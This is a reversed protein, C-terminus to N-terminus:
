IIEKRKRTLVFAASSLVCVTAALAIGVDGTKESESSSGGSTTDEESPADEGPNLLSMIFDIIMNLFEELMDFDFGLSELFDAFSGSINVNGDVLQEVIDALEANGMTNAIADIFDGLTVGNGNLYDRILQLLMNIKEAQTAEEETVDDDPLDVAPPTNEPYNFDIIESGYLVTGAIDNEKVGDDTRFEDIYIYLPTEDKTTDIVNFTIYVLDREATKTIGTQTSPIWAVAYQNDTHAKPGQVDLGSFNVNGDADTALGASKVRLIAPDYEFYMNFGVFNKVAPAKVVVTFTTTTVSAAESGTSSYEGEIVGATLDPGAVASGMPAAMICILLATLFIALAKKMIDEKLNFKPYVRALRTPM